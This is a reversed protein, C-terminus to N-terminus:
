WGEMYELITDSHGRKGQCIAMRRQVQHTSIHTVDYIMVRVPDMGADGWTWGAVMKIKYWQSNWIKLQDLMDDYSLTSM